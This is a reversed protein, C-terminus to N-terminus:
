KKTLEKNKKKNHEDIKMKIMGILLGIDTLGGLFLLKYYAQHAFVDKQIEPINMYDLNNSILININNGDKDIIRHNSFSYSNNDENSSDILTPDVVFFLNDIQVINYAHTPCVAVYSDTKTRDLLTSLFAAYNGCIAKDNHFVGYLYGQLYFLSFANEKSLDTEDTYSFNDIIYTIAKKITDINYDNEEFHISDVIRDIEENLLLLDETIDTGKKLYKCYIKVGQDKLKLLENTDMHILTTYPRLIHMEELSSLKTYDIKYNSILSDKTTDFSIRKIQSFMEILGKELYFNEISFSDLEKSSKIFNLQEKELYCLEEEEEINKISLNILSPLKKIGKLAQESGHPIILTLDKLNHCYNIWELDEEITFPSLELSLSEILSLDSKSSTPVSIQKKLYLPIHVKHFLDVISYDNFLPTENEKVLHFQCGELLSTTLISSLLLSKIKKSEM